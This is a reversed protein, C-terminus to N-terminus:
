CITLIKMFLKVFSNNYHIIYGYSLPLLMRFVSIITFVKRVIFSVAAARKKTVMYKFPIDLRANRKVFSEHPKKSEALLNLHFPHSWHCNFVFVRKRYKLILLLPIHYDILKGQYVYLQM